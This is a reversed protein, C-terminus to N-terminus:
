LHTRPVAYAKRLRGSSVDGRVGGADSVGVLQAATGRQVGAAMAEGAGAGGARQQVGGAGSVRRAGQQEAVGRLREGVASGARHVVDRDGCGGAAEGPHFRLNELMLVQGDQLHDAQDRVEGGVVGGVFLVKSGLLEQLRAAVPWLSLRARDDQTKPRGLHSMLILRGGRRLVSRITPLTARVRRDDGIAGQADLPVNFDERLLVRRGAVKVDEISRKNM